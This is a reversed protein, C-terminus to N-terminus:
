ENVVKAGRCARSGDNWAEIAEDKTLFTKEPLNFHKRCKVYYKNNIGCFDDIWTRFTMLVAESGCSCPLLGSM